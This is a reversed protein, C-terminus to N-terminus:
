SLVEWITLDSSHQQSRNDDSANPNWVNAPLDSGGNISGWGISIAQSGTDSTSYEGNIFWGIKISTARYTDSPYHCQFISDYRNGSNGIKWWYGMNYSNASSFVIQGVIVLKSAAVKKTYSIGSWLTASTSASLSTRTSNQYHQYGIIAGSYGLQSIGVSSAGLMSNTITASDGTTVLNATVAPTTLTYTSGTTPASLIVSGGGPSILKLPM